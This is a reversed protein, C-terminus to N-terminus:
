FHSLHFVNYTNTNNDCYSYTHFLICIFSLINYWYGSCSISQTKLLSESNSDISVQKAWSASDSYIYVQGNGEESWYLQNLDSNLCAKHGKHTNEPRFFDVVFAHM